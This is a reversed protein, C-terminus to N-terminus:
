PVSLEARVPVQGYVGLRVGLEGRLYERVSEVACGGITMHENDQRYGCRRFARDAGMLPRPSGNRRQSTRAHFAGLLPAQYGRRLCPGGHDYIPRRGWALRSRPARRHRPLLRSPFVMRSAQANNIAPGSSASRLRCGQRLSPDCPQGPFCTSTAHPAARSEVPVSGPRRTLAAAEVMPPPSARNTGGCLGPGARHASVM